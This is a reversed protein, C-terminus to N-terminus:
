EVINEYIIHQIYVSNELDISIQGVFSFADENLHKLDEALRDSELATSDYDVLAQEYKKQLLSLVTNSDAIM